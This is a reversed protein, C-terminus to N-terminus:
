ASPKQSVPVYTEDFFEAFFKKKNAVRESLGKPVIKLLLEVFELASNRFPLLVLVKPRTFGQDRYEKEEADKKRLSLSFLATLYLYWKTHIGTLLVYKEKAAANLLSNNKLIADRTKFVHNVAHLAYMSMISTANEHDRDTFILDHYDSIISLLADQQENVTINFINSADPNTRQKRRQRKRARKSSIDLVEDYLANWRTILRNKIQLSSPAVFFL